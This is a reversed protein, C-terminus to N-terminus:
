RAPRALLARIWGSWGDERSRWSTPHCSALSALSLRTRTTISADLARVTGGGRCLWQFVVLGSPGRARLPPGISLDLLAHSCAM